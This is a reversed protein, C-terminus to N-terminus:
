TTLQVTPSYRVEAARISEDDSILDPRLLVVQFM